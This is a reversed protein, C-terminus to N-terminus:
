SGGPGLGGGRWWPRRCSVMRGAHVGGVMSRELSTCYAVRPKARPSQPPIKVVEIGAGSLVADFADTFQGARDRILFRFRGAREGLDMLLNRAQQVTWAGDPHATVLVHVYRSGVELVFFVYVRRLTVACDVHFFDCALMPSAQTRIFQRWTSRSRQPAPPIQLRRLVRRVTSAGVRIGLGLLEGQIRQYGWAPNERAMQEILVALKADIPPRGRRRPYTWRCRILRRHWRLLTDPTVLRSLRLPRPLLRALAALMARDVWDLKPRPHQRRLVAVEQRLVLLEADKSASSRALLAMWGALRVFILYLM